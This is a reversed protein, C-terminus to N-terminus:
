ECYHFAPTETHCLTSMSGDVAAGEWNQTGGRTSTQYTSKGLAVNTGNVWVQLPPCPNQQRSATWATCRYGAAGPDAVSTRFISSTQSGPKWM